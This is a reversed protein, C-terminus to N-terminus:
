AEQADLLEFEDFEEECSNCFCELSDSVSDTEGTDIFTLQKKDKDYGVDYLSYVLEKAQIDADEKCRPCIM